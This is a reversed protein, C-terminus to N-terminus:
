RKTKRFIKKQPQQALSAAPQAVLHAEKDLKEQKMKKLAQSRALLEKGKASTVLCEQRINQVKAKYAPLLSFL